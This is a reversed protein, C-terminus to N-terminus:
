EAATDEPQTNSPEPEPADAPPELNGKSIYIDITANMAVFESNKSAWVVSGKSEYSDAYGVRYTINAGKSVFDFFYEQLDKETKGILDDIYPKGLSYVVNVSLDEGILATGAPTSQSILRGYPVNASYRNKITVSLGTFAAAEEPSLSGFNPVVVSKGLSIVFKIKSKRAVKTDKAIDQSIVCGVPVTESAQETYAADIENQSAWAEAEAQPKGIFDLVTINKELVEPGLSMYILLGDKRTFTSETISPNSFEMKIFKGEAVKEDYLENINVSLAKTQNRWEYIENVTMSSFDPLDILEDPDPGMSVTLAIVSGKQIKSGPDKDQGIIIDENYTMDYVSETEISINNTLGWTKADSLPSGEFNKVTVRNVIGFILFVAVILVLILGAIVAYRIIKRRNYSDDREVVHEPGTIRAGSRNEAYAPREYGSYEAPPSTEARVSSETESISENELPIETPYTNKEAPSQAPPESLSAEANEEPPKYASYKKQEESHKLSNYNNNSFQNLFDSM